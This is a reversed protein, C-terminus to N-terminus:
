AKLWGQARSHHRLGQLIRNTILCRLICSSALLVSDSEDEEADEGEEDRDEVNDNTKENANAPRGGANGSFQQGTELPVVAEDPAYIDDEDEDM